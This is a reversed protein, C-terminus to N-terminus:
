DQFKEFWARKCEMQAEDPLGALGDKASLVSAMTHCRDLSAYFQAVSDTSTGEVQMGSPEDLRIVQTIERQTAKAARNGTKGHSYDEVEERMQLGKLADPFVDRGALARARMLLMREPYQTWPGSKGWLGARKAMGITFSRSVPRRGFRKLYVRFGFTDTGPEGLEEDWQDECAQNGVILAWFGDGWMTPRGNIVAISQLSQVPGLGLESGMQVAILVSEPKGKFDKPVLESNAMLRAYQMAEALSTARLSFAPLAVATTAIATSLTPLASTAAVPVLEETDLIVADREERDLDVLQQSMTEGGIIM